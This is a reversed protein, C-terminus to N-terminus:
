VAMGIRATRVDEATRINEANSVNDAGWVTDGGIVDVSGRTHTAGGVADQVDNDGMVTDGGIVDDAGIVRTDGRVAHRVDEAGIVHAASQIDDDVGTGGVDRARLHHVLKCVDACRRMLALELGADDVIVLAAHIERLGDVAEEIQEAPSAGLRSGLIDLPSAPDPM